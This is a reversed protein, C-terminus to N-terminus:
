LPRHVANELGSLAAVCGPITPMLLGCASGHLAGHPPTRGGLIPLYRSELRHGSMRHERSVDGVGRMGAQLCISGKGPNRRGREAPGVSPFRM